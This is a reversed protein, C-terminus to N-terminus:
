LLYQESRLTQTFRVSDLLLPTREERGELTSRM